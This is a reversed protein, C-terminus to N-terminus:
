KKQCKRCLGFIAFHNLDATFGYEAHLSKELSSFLRAEAEIMTKCQRCVLHHHHPHHHIEYEVRGQGLDTPNVLGIATLIDLTRYVASKNVYPYRKRVAQLIDEASIHGPTQCLVALVMERQPTLRYGKDRLQQVLTSPHM